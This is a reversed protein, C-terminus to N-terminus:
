IREIMALTYLHWVNDWEAKTIISSQFDITIVSMRSRHQKEKELQASVYNLHCLSWPLIPIPEDIDLWRLCQPLLIHRTDLSPNNNCSLWTLTSPLIPLTKLKNYMCNLSLLGQPLQPLEDLDNHSCDLYTLTIPLLCEIRTMRNLSINLQILHDDTIDEETLRSKGRNFLSLNM